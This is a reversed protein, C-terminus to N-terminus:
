TDNTHTTPFTGLYLLTGHSGEGWQTEVDICTWWRTIDEEKGVGGIHTSVPINGNDDNDDDDDNNNNKTMITKITM